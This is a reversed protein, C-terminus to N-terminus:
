SVCKCWVHTVRPFCTWQQEGSPCPGIPICSDIVVEPAKKADRVCNENKDPDCTFNDRCFAAAFAGAPGALTPSALAKTAADELDKGCSQVPPLANGDAGSPVVHKGHCSEAKPEDCACVILDVTTSCRWGRLKPNGKDCPVSDDPVCSWPGNAWQGAWTCSEPSACEDFLDRCTAAAFAKVQALFTPDEAAADVAQNESRACVHVDPPGNGPLIATSHSGPCQAVAQSAICALVSAIGVVLRRQIM